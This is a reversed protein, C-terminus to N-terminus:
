PETIRAELGVIGQVVASDGSFPYGVYLQPLLGWRIEKGFLGIHVGGSLGGGISAEIVPQTGSVGGASSGTSGTKSRVWGVLVDVFVTRGVRLGTQYGGFSDGSGEGVVLYVPIALM